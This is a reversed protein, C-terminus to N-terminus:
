LAKAASPWDLSAMSINVKSSCSALLLTPAQTHGGMRSQGGGCQEAIPRTQAALALRQTAKLRKRTELWQVSVPDTLAITELRAISERESEFAPRLLACQLARSFQTRAPAATAQGTRIKTV